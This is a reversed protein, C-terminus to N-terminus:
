NLKMSVLMSVIYAVGHMAYSCLLFALWFKYYNEQMQFSLVLVGTFAVSTLIVRYFNVMDVGIFYALRNHNASFERKYVVEDKGFVRVGSPGCMLAIVVCLIFSYTPIRAEQAATNMVLKM